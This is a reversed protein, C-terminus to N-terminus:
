AYTQIKEILRLIERNQKFQFGEMSGRRKIAALSRKLIEFWKKTMNSFFYQM